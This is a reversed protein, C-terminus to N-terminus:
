DMEWESILECATCPLSPNAIDAPFAGCHKVHEVKSVTYALGLDHSGWYGPTAAYLTGTGDTPLGDLVEGTAVLRMLDAEGRDAIEPSEAADLHRDREDALYEWAEGPTYFTPVEDAMPSYGPVNVTATFVPESM